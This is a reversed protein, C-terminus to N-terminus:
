HKTQQSLWVMEKHTITPHNDWSSEMNEVFFKFKSGIFISGNDTIFKEPVGFRSLINEKLFLILQKSDVNRLSVVEQWKTFYDTTTIIYAHGKSSKPNIPGIVDLGWQAFPEEVTISQLPIADRKMKGSFKQCPLCKQIMTYAYKFM